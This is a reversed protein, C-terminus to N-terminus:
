QLCDSAAPAAQNTSREPVAFSEAASYARHRLTELAAAVWPQHSATATLRVRWSPSLKLLRSKRHEHECRVHRLLARLWRKCTPSLCGSRALGICDVCAELASVAPVRTTARAAVSIPVLESDM